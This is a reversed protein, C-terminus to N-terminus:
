GLEFSSIGFTRDQMPLDPKGGAYMRATEFVPEFNYKKALEVAAANVDPPDIYLTASNATSALARLLGDAGEATDAFLPGIKFGDEAPRIVGYGCVGGTGGLHVMCRHKEATIWHRTFSDRTDAFFTRDYPMVKEILDTQDAALEVVNDPLRAGDVTLQGAYRINNQVLSFGSRAYNDQQDVVGDLGITRGDLQKMAADWIQIGYGQGRYESKVIYFGIFGFTQGYRVASICAIPEGNLRGILFGDPDATHFAEADHRGPNWGENTAWSVMLDLDARTATAIQYDTSTM